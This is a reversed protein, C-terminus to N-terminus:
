LKWRLSATLFHMMTDEYSGAIRGALPGRRQDVGMDGGWALEYAIGLDLNEKLPRRGGAGFRYAKGVLLSPTRDADDLCSSDYAAGFSVQWESSTKVQAGVAVHWTDKFNQDVTLSTPNDSSVQVDVKGFESWDQWGANGLLSWRDDLRHVFSAMATQPETMSLDLRSGLLGAAELLTSMGTGLDSFEPTDGFDLSVKSTYTLGWRTKENPEYILGLNGGFGWTTDEMKLGGDPRTDLLNNVAVETDMVGYTANLAAGISFHDNVKWAVAPLVSVGLLTSDQVYYRGAWDDEYQLGLGFNGTVAVGLRLRDTTPNVYFLGGGPFWGVPNGGDGGSPTTYSNPTFGISAYLAQMGLMLDNQKLRTMGAPNTLITAADEARAAWGASALGVEPTGVEYLILGGALVPSSSVLLALLAIGIVTRM